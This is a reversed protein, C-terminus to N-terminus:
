WVSLATLTPSIVIEREVDAKESRIRASVLWYIGVIRGEFSLPQKPANFQFAAEGESQGIPWTMTQDTGRDVSGKGRTSWKLEAALETGIPANVWRVVGAIVEGPKFAERKRALIIQLGPHGM